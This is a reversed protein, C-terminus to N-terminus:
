AQVLPTQESLPGAKKKAGGGGGGRSKSRLGILVDSGRRLLLECASSAKDVARTVRQLQPTMIRRQFWPGASGLTIMVRRPVSRLPLGTLRLAINDISATPPLRRLARRAAM